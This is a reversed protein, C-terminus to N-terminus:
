KIEVGKWDSKKEALFINRSSFFDLKDYIMPIVSLGSTTIAGCKGERCAILLGNSAETLSSFRPEVLVNCQKDALGQLLSTTLLFKNDPLRRVDDYRLPLISTGTKGIVGFKRNRSVIALGNLFLSCNDYNPNVVIQDSKNVFGWKGILKVAAVGEHFEGISDYRNAIRLRGQQDVFGYRGDKKIGRLGEHEHFIEEVNNPVATREIIEGSYSITKEVGDPLFETFNEKNFEIPYPTFYLIEGVFSKIFNNGPQRQLYRQENIVSLPYTQPAVLWDENANIIGYKVKFKVAILGDVPQSISDFVCHIFERGEFNVIGSFGKSVLPFGLQNPPLLKEYYKETLEKGNENLLQWGLRKNYARYHNNERILSDFSFPVIMEGKENIVGLKGNRKVLYKGPEIEAVNEYEIPLLQNLDQDTVGWANGKEILFKKECLQKLEGAFIQKINENKDNVFLWENPLQTFVKGEKDIKISKYKAEIKVAGDRDILGQLHDQYIVAFGKYFHSVSDISFDTIPKGEDGFIAIKNNSNEVAFRLTGLPRIEKYTLPILIKNELDALGYYYRPGKLDFVIARLGQVTIGDYIFPIKIEGKLNICGTKSLVRNIKKRAM